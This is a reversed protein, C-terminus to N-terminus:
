KIPKFTTSILVYENKLEGAGIIEFGKRELDRAAMDKISSMTYDYDIYIRQSFRDSTMSVRSGRSNTAGHYKIRILHYNQLM